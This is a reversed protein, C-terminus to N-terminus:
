RAWSFLGKKKAKQTPALGATTRALARLSRTAQCDPDVIDLAQGSNLSSMIPRSDYPILWHIPQNVHKAVEDLSIEHSDYYRNIIFKVKESRYGLEKFTELARITRRISPLLMECLLLIEDSEDLAVISGDDITHPLDLITYNYVKRCTQIVGRIRWPDLGEAEELSVPAPLVAVGSEHDSMFTALMNEDLREQEHAADALTHSFELIDMTLAVSGFQLNLDVICSSKPARLEKAILAALNCAVTTVGAGGSVSFVSVVTGEGQTFIGKRKFLGALAKSLEDADIPFELFEDSGARMCSVLLERTPEKSVVIIGVEETVARIAEVTGLAPDNPSDVGVVVAAPHEEKVQSPGQRLDAIPILELESDYQRFAALIQECHQENPHLVMIRVDPM